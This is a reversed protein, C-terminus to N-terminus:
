ATTEARLAMRGAVSEHKRGHLHGYQFRVDPVPQDPLALTLLPQGHLCPLKDFGRSAARGITWIRRAKRDPSLVGACPIASAKGTSRFWLASAPVAGLGYATALSAPQNGPFSFQAAFILGPPLRQERFPGQSSASLPQQRPLQVACPNFALSMLTVM